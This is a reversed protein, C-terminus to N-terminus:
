ETNKGLLEKILNPVMLIAFLPNNLGFELPRFHFLSAALAPENATADDSTDIYDVRHWMWPPVWLADGAKTIVNYHPVSTLSGPDLPDLNSYYFARHHRSVSPKLFVSQKPHVLTWMKSGHLQVAVNGIPECHLDTRPHKNDDNTDTAAHATGALFVPVTTSAPFLRFPGSGRISDPDFHNGFLETVLEIPAVESMLSPHREVIVQTGIKQKGQRVTINHVIEGLPAMGSPKLASYGSKTADSYFPVSLNALHSAFGELSLQRNPDALQEETWLGRLLLPKSLFDNGLLGKVDSLSPPYCTPAGEGEDGTTTTCSRLDLVPIEMLEDDHGAGDQIEEWKHFADAEWVDAVAWLAGDAFTATSMSKVLQAASWKVSAHLHHYVSTSPLMGERDYPHLSLASALSVACMLSSLFILNIFMIHRIVDRLVSPLSSSGEDDSQVDVSSKGSM